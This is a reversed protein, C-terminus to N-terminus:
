DDEFWLKAIGIPKLDKDINELMAGLDVQIESSATTLANHISLEKEIRLYDVSGKKLGFMVAGIGARQQINTDTFMWHDKAVKFAAKLKEEVTEAIAIEARAEAEIISVAINLDSM